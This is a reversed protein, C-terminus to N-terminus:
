QLLPYSIKVDLIADEDIASAHGDLFVASVNIGMHGDIGIWSNTPGHLGVGHRRALPVAYGGVPATNFREASETFLIKSAPALWQNIKTRHVLQVDNRAMADNMGYSYLYAGQGSLIAPMSKRGEVTDSPCRLLTKLKEGSVGLYKAIPSNDINRNQEWWIWDDDMQIDSGGDAPYGCTPFYGKNDNCYMLVGTFLQKVNSLCVVRNAAARAKGLVSLLISILLAIIGIVVLLEVLTFGSGSIDKKYSVQKSTRMSMENRRIKEFSARALNCPLAKLHQWEYERVYRHHGSEM